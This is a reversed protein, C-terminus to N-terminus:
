ERCHVKNNEILRKLKFYMGEFLFPQLVDRGEGPNAKAMEKSTTKGCPPLSILVYTRINTSKNYLSDRLEILDLKYKEM